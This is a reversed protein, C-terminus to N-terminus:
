RAQGGIQRCLGATRAVQRGDNRGYPQRLSSRKARPEHQGRQPLSLGVGSSDRADHSHDAVSQRSLSFGRGHAKPLRRLGCSSRGEDGRGMRSLRTWLARMSPGLPRNAWGHALPARGEARVALRQATRRQAPVACGAYRPHGGMTRSSLPANGALSLFPLWDRDEAWEKGERMAQQWFSFAGNDYMIAPSIEEVEEVDDPRYFSVCMARGACIDMLAARPTLPTGHYIVPM